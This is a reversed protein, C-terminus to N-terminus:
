RAAGNRYGAPRGQGGGGMFINAAPATSRVVASSAISTLVEDGAQLGGALLETWQGDTMGTRVEVERIVGDARVFVRDTEGDDNPRGAADIGLASRVTASPSVRLASNPIRVVDDRRVIEIHATATMGPRLKLDRNPVDVIVTYTTVNQAVTPQLRVQRTEGTFPEGPYADVTFSVSQGPQIKGIDSEDVDTQLQMKTLDAALTFLTPSSLSAAVTQGVDVSRGVVIGDIPATITAYALNVRNQNLAARAQVAQAETAKVQAIASDTAVKAADLDSRAVLQRDALVAARDYKQQADLVRVRASEVDAQVRLLNAQAQEVQANLLSPELRAIVDGKRVLSNFDAGLWSITGSVQTGVQVTTVAQITGTATVGEVISGRSLRLTSVTPPAESRTYFARVGVAVVCTLLVGVVFRKVM